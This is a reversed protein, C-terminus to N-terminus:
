WGGYTAVAAHFTKDVERPLGESGDSSTEGRNCIRAAKAWLDLSFMVEAL